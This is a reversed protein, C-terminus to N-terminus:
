CWPDNGGGESAVEKSANRGQLCRDTGLVVEVEKKGLQHSRALCLTPRTAALVARCYGYTEKARVHLGAPKVPTASSGDFQSLVRTNTGLKKEQSAKVSARAWAASM